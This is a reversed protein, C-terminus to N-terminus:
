NTKVWLLICSLTVNTQVNTDFRATYSSGDSTISTIPYSTTNIPIVSM